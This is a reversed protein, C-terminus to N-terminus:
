NRPRSLKEEIYLMAINTCFDLQEETLDVGKKINHWYELCERCCTGTAHQAYNAIEDGQKPTQYGERYNNAKGIRKNIEKKTRLRREEKDFSLAKDIAKKDINNHWFVHRFLELNLSKILFKSDNLDNKRVRPWDVLDAGCSSCFRKGEFKALEKKNLHFCHLNDDCRSSKCTIDLPSLESIPKDINVKMKNRM